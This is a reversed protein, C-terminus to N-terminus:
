RRVRVVTYVVSAITFTLPLATSATTSTSKIISTSASSAKLREPFVSIAAADGSVSRPAVTITALPGRQM